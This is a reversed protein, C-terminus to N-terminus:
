AFIDGRNKKISTVPVQPMFRPEKPMFTRVLKCRCTPKGWLTMHLNVDIVNPSRIKLDPFFSRLEDGYFDHGDFKECWKCRRTDSISIYHWIDFKSFYGWERLEEPIWRKDKVTQVARVAKLLSLYKREM